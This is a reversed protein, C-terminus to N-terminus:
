RTTVKHSQGYAASANPSPTPASTSTQQNPQSTATTTSIPDTTNTPTSTSSSAPAVATPTTVSPIATLGQPASDAYDSAVAPLSPYSTHGYFPSTTGTTSPLNLSGWQPHYNLAGFGLLIAPLTIVTASGFASRKINRWRKGHEDFFIM